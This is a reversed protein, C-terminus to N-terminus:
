KISMFKQEQGVYLICSSFCDLYVLSFIIFILNLNIFYFDQLLISFFLYCYVDDQLSIFLKLFLCFGLAPFPFSPVNTYGISKFHIDKHWYHSIKSPCKLFCCQCFFIYLRFIGEVVYFFQSHLQIYEGFFVQLGSPMLLSNRQVHLSYIAESNCLTKQFTCSITKMRTKFSADNELVQSFNSMFSFFQEEQM